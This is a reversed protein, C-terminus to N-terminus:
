NQQILDAAKEAIMITPANTNGHPSAPMISADIVRLGDIGHVRLTPDVVAHDHTGMACTSTPHYMTQSWRRIHDALEDDTPEASNPLHLKTLFGALPELRSIELLIKAGALLDDFDAQERYFNLDIVPKSTPDADSLTIRGRSRPAVLTAAAGFAPRPVPQPNNDNYGTALTYLQINPPGDTVGTSLFGGTDAFNSALPGRREHAYRQAAEETAALEGLDTTGTTAWALTTTPHDQLNEGVDPLDIAVDIGHQLLHKAPGIGSRLLLHPSGIAGCCVLVERDAMVTHSSHGDQCVVGKARGKEILIRTALTGTHVTLNPRALAPRLYADVTSWRQGDRCTVQYHGVGHQDGTNFDDNPPLGWKTAADLWSQQLPHPELPDEVRLPGGHGHTPGTFRANDEARQFYPLVDQYGWGTAGYADRWLDYDAPACRMYIMTNISSCGGLVRGRPMYQTRGTSALPVTTYDWDLGSKFLSFSGAPMHIRPDDDTPGAELILVRVDPDETLRAALVCGASGAGVIIYDFSASTMKAKPQRGNRATSQPHKNELPQAM